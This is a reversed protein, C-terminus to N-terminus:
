DFKLSTIKRAKAEILEIITKELLTPNEKNVISHFLCTMLWEEDVILEDKVMSLIGAKTTSLYQYFEEEDLRAQAEDTLYVEGRERDISDIDKDM